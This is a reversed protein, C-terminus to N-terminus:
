RDLLELPTLLTPTKLGLHDNVSRIHRLKRGNALHKCNWTLLWECAYYSAFALHAADGSADAPMLKHALYQSIIEDVAPVPELLRVEELMELARERKPVPTQRLEQLVPPATVLEFDSRCEDWWERTWDRRSIIGATTRTEHYFSPITTEM